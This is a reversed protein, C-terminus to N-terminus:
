ADRNGRPPSHHARRRAAKAWLADERAGWFGDEFADAAVAGQRREVAGIIARSATRSIKEFPLRRPCAACVLAPDGAKPLNWQHPGGGGGPGCHSPADADGREIVVSIRLPGHPPTPHAEPQEAVAAARAAWFKEEFADAADAGRRREVTDLISRRAYRSIEEFPLERGCAACVLAPDGVRPPNWEHPSCRPMTPSALLQAGAM